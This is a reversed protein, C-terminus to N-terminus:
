RLVGFLLAVIVFLISLYILRRNVTSKPAIWNYKEEEVFLCHQHKKFLKM